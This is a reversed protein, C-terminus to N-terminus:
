HKLKYLLLLDRTDKLVITLSFMPTPVPMMCILARVGAAVAILASAV